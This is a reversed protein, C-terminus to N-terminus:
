GHFVGKGTVSRALQRLKVKVLNLADDAPEYWSSPKIIRSFGYVFAFSPYRYGTAVSRVTNISIDLRESFKLWLANNAILLSRGHSVGPLITFASRFDSFYAQPNIELEEGVGVFWDCPDILSALRAIYNFPPPAGGALIQYLTNVSPLDYKKALAPVEINVQSLKHRAESIEGIM